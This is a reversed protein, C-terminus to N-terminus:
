SKIHIWSIYNLFVIIDHCFNIDILERGVVGAQKVAVNSEEGLVLQYVAVLRVVSVQFVDELLEIYVTRGVEM